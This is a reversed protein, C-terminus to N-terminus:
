TAADHSYARRWAPRLAHPVADIPMSTRYAVPPGEDWAKPLLYHVFALLAPHESPLALLERSVALMRDLGDARGLMGRVVSLALDPTIGTGDPALSIRVLWRAHDLADFGDAAGLQEACALAAERVIPDHTNAKCFDVVAADITDDDWRDVPSAMVALLSWLTSPESATLMLRAVQVLEDAPFPRPLADLLLLASMPEIADIGGALAPLAGLRQAPGLRLTRVLALEADLWLPDSPSRTVASLIDGAGMPDKTAYLADLWTHRFDTDRVAELLPDPGRVADSRASLWARCLSAVEDPHGQAHRYLDLVASDGDVATALLRVLRDLREPDRFPAPIVSWSAALARAAGDAAIHKAMDSLLATMAADDEGLGVLEQIVESWVSVRTARTDELPWSLLTHQLAGVVAQTAHGHHLWTLLAAVWPDLQAGKPYVTLLTHVLDATPRLAEPERVLAEVTTAREKATRTAMARWPRADRATRTIHLLRDVLADDLAAGARLRASLARVVGEPDRALADDSLEAVGDPPSRLVAAVADSWPDTRRPEAGPPAVQFATAELAEPADALLRERIYYAVLDQGEDDPHAIDVIHYGAPARHTVVFSWAGPMPQPEGVSVRLTTRWAAPLLTYLALTFARAPHMAHALAEPSVVLAVPLGARLARVIAAIAKIGNRRSEHLTLGQQLLARLPAHAPVPHSDNSAQHPDLWDDSSWLWAPHGVRVADDHGLIRWTTWAGVSRGVAWRQDLLPVCREVTWPPPAEAELAVLATLEQPLVQHARLSVDHAPSKAVPRGSSRDVIFSPLTLPM